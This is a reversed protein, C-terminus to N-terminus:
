MSAFFPPKERESEGLTGRERSMDERWDEFVWM